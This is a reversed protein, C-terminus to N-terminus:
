WELEVAVKEAQADLDPASNAPGPDDGGRDLWATGKHYVEDYRPPNAPGPNASPQVVLDKGAWYGCGTMCIYPPVASGAFASKMQKGCKPCDPGIPVAELGSEARPAGAELIVHEVCLFFETATPWPSMGHRQTPFIATGLLDNWAEYRTVFVRGLMAAAQRLDEAINSERYGNPTHFGRVLHAIEPLNRVYEIVAALEAATPEDTM